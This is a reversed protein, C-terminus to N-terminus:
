RYAQIPFNACQSAYEQCWARCKLTSPSLMEQCVGIWIGYKVPVQLFALIEPVHMGLELDLLRSYLIQRTLM